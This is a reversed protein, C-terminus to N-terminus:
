RNDMERMKVQAAGKTEPHIVSLHPGLGAMIRKRKKVPILRTARPKAVPFTRTPMTIKCGKNVPNMNAGPKVRSEIDKIGSCLLTHTERMPGSLARIPMPRTGVKKPCIPSAPRNPVPKRKKPISINDAM